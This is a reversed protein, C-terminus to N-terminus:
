NNNDMGGLDEDGDECDDDCDNHMALGIQRGM